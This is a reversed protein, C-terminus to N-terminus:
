ARRSPAEEEQRRHAAPLQQHPHHRRRLLRPPLPPAPHQRTRATDQARRAPYRLTQHWSLSAARFRERPVSAVVGAAAALPASAPLTGAGRGGRLATALQAQTGGRSSARARRSARLLRLLRHLVRMYINYMNRICVCVCLCVCVCVYVCMSM